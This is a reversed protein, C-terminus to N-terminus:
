CCYCSWVLFDVPLKADRHCALRGDFAEQPEHNEVRGNQANFPFTFVLSKAKGLRGRGFGSRPRHDEKNLSEFVGPM